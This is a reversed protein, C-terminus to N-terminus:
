ENGRPCKNKGRQRKPCVPTPSARKTGLHASRETEVGYVIHGHAFRCCTRLEAKLRSRFRTFASSRAATEHVSIYRLFCPAPHINSSAKSSTPKSATAKRAPM